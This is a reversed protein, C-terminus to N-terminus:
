VKDTTLAQDVDLLFLVGNSLHDKVDFFNATRAKLSSNGPSCSDSANAMTTNDGSCLRGHVIFQLSEITCQSYHVVSGTM